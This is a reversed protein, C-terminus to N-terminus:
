EDGNRVKREIGETSECHENDIPGNPANKIQKRVAIVADTLKDYGSQAAHLAEDSFDLTSRYHSNLIM